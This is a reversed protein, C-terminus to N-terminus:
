SSGGPEVPPGEDPRSFPRYPKATGQLGDFRDYAALEVYAGSSERAYGRWQPQRNEATAKENQFLRLEGPSIDIGPPVPSNPTVSASRQAVIMAVLSNSGLQGKIYPKGTEKAQEIWVSVLTTKQGELTYAGKMDPPRGGGNEHHEAPVGAEDSAQTFAILTFNYDM